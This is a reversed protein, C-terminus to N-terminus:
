AETKELFERAEQDGEDGRLVEEYLRRAEGQEGRLAALRAQRQVLGQVEQANLGELMAAADDLHQADLMLDIRLLKLRPHEPALANAEQVCSEVQELARHKRHIAALDLLTEVLGAKNAAARQQALLGELHQVAADVNGGRLHVSALNRQVVSRDLSLEQGESRQLLQELADITSREDGLREAVNAIEALIAVQLGLEPSKNLRFRLLVLQKAWLRRRKYFAILPDVFTMNGSNLALAAKYQAEAQEVREARDLLEAYKLLLRGRESPQRHQPLHQELLKLADVLRSASVMADALDELASLQAAGSTAAVRKELETLGGPGAASARERLESVRAELASTRQESTLAAMRQTFSAEELLALAEPSEGRKVQLEARRLRAEIWVLGDATGEVEEFMVLSSEPEDERKWLADMRSRAQTNGEDLSLVQELVMYASGFDKLHETLIDAVRLLNEAKEAPVSEARQLSLNMLETWDSQETYSKCLHQFAESDTPELQLLQEYLRAAQEADRLTDTWLRGLQKLVKARVAETTNELETEVLRAWRELDAKDSLAARAAAFTPTDGRLAYLQAYRLSLEQRQSSQRRLLQCLRELFTAREAGIEVRDCLQAYLAILVENENGKSLIPDCARLAESAIALDDHWALKQLADLADRRSSDGQLVATYHKLAWEPDSSAKARLGELRRENEALEDADRLLSHLKERMAIAREFRQTQEYCDALKQSFELSTPQAELAVEFFRTAQELHGQELHLRGLREGLYARAGLGSAKEFENELVSALEERNGLEKSVRDLLAHIKVSLPNFALARTLSLFAREMRQEREQLAAQCILLTAHQKSDVDRSELVDMLAILEESEESHQVHKSLLEFAAVDFNADHSTERLLYHLLAFADGHARSDALMRAFIDLGESGKSLHEILVRARLLMLTDRIEEHEVKSVQEGLLAAWDAWRESEGFLEDLAAIAAPHGPRYRLMSSLHSIAQEANDLQDKYVLGLAYHYGGLSEESLAYLERGAELHEVLGSWNQESLLTDRHQIFMERERYSAPMPPNVGFASDQEVAAQEFLRPRSRDPAVESAEPVHFGAEAANVLLRGVEDRLRLMEAALLVPGQADQWRGQGEALRALYGSQDINALSWRVMETLRVADAPSFANPDHGWLWHYFRSVCAADLRIESWLVRKASVRRWFADERDARGDDWPYWDVRSHRMTQYAVLMHGRSFLAIAPLGIPRILESKIMRGLLEEDCAIGRGTLMELFADRELGESLLPCRNRITEMLNSQTTSM